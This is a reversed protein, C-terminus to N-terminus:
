GHPRCPRERRRTSITRRRVRWGGRRRGARNSVLPPSSGSTRPHHTGRAPCRGKGRGQVGGWARRLVARLSPRDAAACRESGASRSAGPGRRRAAPPMGTRHCCRPRRRATGSPPRRGKLLSSTARIAASDPVTPAAKRVRTAVPFTAGASDVAGPRSMNSPDFTRIEAFRRPSGTARRCRGFRVPRPPSTAGSTAPRTVWRGVTLWVSRGAAPGPEHLQRRTRRPVRGAEAAHGCRGTTPRERRRDSRHARRPHQRTTTSGAFLVSTAGMMM